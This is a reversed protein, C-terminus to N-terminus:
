AANPLVARALFVTRWVSHKEGFKMEVRDPMEKWGFDVLGAEEMM